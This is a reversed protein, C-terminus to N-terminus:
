NKKLKNFNIIILYNIFLNLYSIFLFIYAFFWSDNLTFYYCAIDISHNATTFLRSWNDITSEFPTLITENFEGYPISEVIQFSSIENDCVQQMNEELNSPPNESNANKDEFYYITGLMTLLGVTLIIVVILFIILFKKNATKSEEEM